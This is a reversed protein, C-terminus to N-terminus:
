NKSLASHIDYEVSGRSFTSNVASSLNASFADSSTLKELVVM